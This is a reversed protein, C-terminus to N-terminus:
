NLVMEISGIINSKKISLVKSYNKINRISAASPLPKAKKAVFIADLIEKEQQYFTALDNLTSNKNM